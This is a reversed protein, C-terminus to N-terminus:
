NELNEWVSLFKFNRYEQSLEILESVVAKQLENYRSEVFGTLPFDKRAPFGDFGYDTLLRTLNPHKNFFIGFMDWIESEQWKAAFFHSAISDVPTLEDVFVTIKLRTNYQISLFEYVLKFRYKNNPYDVCTICTLVKFQYLLHLKLFFTIEKLFIEHIIVSIENNNYIQYKIVPCVQKLQIM